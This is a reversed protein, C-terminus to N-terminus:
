LDDEGGDPGAPRFFKDDEQITAVDEAAAEKIEDLGPNGRDRPRVLLSLRRPNPPRPNLRHANPPRPRVRRPNLPSSMVLSLVLGIVGILILIVGVVHVNLGHTSTTAFAVFRLIAGVAILFLATGTSMVHRRAQPPAPRGTRQAHESTGGTLSGSPAALTIRALSCTVSRATGHREGDRAQRRAPVPGRM